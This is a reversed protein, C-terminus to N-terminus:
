HHARASVGLIVMNGPLCCLIGELPDLGEEGELFPTSLGGFGCPPKAKVGGRVPAAPLVLTGATADGGAGQDHLSSPLCHSVPPWPAM